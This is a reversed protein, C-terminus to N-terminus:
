GIRDRGSIDFTDIKERIKSLLCSEKFGGNGSEAFCAGVKFALIGILIKKMIYFCLFRNNVLM